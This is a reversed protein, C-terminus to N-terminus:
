RRPVPAYRMGRFALVLTRWKEQSESPREAGGDEHVPPRYHLTRGRQGQESPSAQQGAPECRCIWEGGGADMLLAGCYEAGKRWLTSAAAAAARRCAM